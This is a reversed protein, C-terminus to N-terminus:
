FKKITGLIKPSISFYLGIWNYIRLNGMGSWAMEWYLLVLLCAIPWPAESHLHISLLVLLPNVMIWSQFSLRHCRFILLTWILSAQYLLFLVPNDKNFLMDKLWSQTSGSPWYFSKLSALMKWIPLIQIHLPSTPHFWLCSYSCPDLSPLLKRPCKWWIKLSRYLDTMPFDSIMHGVSTKMVNQIWIM